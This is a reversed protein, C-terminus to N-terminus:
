AGGWVPIEGADIEELEIIMSPLRIHGGARDDNVVEFRYVHDALPVPAESLLEKSLYFTRHGYADGYYNGEHDLPCVSVIWYFQDLEVVQALRGYWDYQFDEMPVFHDAMSGDIEESKERSCASMGFVLFLSLFLAILKKM